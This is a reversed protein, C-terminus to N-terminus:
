GRRPEAEAKRIERQQQIHALYRFAMGLISATMGAILTPLVWDPDDPKPWAVAGLLFVGAIPVLYGLGKWDVGSRAEVTFSAHRM